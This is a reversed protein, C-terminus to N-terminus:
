PIAWVKLDDHDITFSSPPDNLTGPITFHDLQFAPIKDLDATTCHGAAVGAASVDIIEIGDVWARLVADRSSASPYAYTTNPRYAVTWRHWNGDNVQAPHGAPTHDWYPGQFQYGFPASNGDFMGANPSWRARPAGVIGIEMRSERPDGKYWMMFWKYGVNGAPAGVSLRFWQQMVLTGSYVRISRPSVPTRWSVSTEGRGGTVKSRLANGTGGRGTM